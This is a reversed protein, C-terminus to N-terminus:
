TVLSNLIENHWTADSIKPIRSFSEKTASVVSDKSINKELFAVLNSNTFPMIIVGDVSKHTDTSELTVASVARWINITNYDLEDAFFFTITEKAENEAKLNLSHRLVPEWEGRKQAQKNM